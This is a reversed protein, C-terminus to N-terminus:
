TEAEAAYGANLENCTGVLDLGSEILTDMLSLVYDGPVGFVHRVGFQKLREALYRGVTNTPETMTM